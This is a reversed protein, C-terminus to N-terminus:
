LISLKVNWLLRKIPSNKENKDEVSKWIVIDAMARGRGRQSNSVKVEQEMTNLEFGYKEVLHIIFKQRVEEEPTLLLWKQKLPAFIKENQIQIKMLKLVKLIYCLNM